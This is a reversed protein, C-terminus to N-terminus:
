YKIRRQAFSLSLALHPFPHVRYSRALETAKIAKHGWSFFVEVVYFVVKNVPVCTPKHFAEIVLEFDDLTTAIANQVDRM